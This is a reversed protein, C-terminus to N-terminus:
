SWRFIKLAVAFCALTWAALALLAPTMSLLAAGDLMVARLADNLTTLPLVKIAPQAADPFNASSFFVGSLIWMPMMIVNMLGSVGEITQVRSAVLLGMAAFTLGGFAVVMSFTVISGAFPVGFVLVGFGILITAELVLFAMRTLMQALLFQSRKMPSAVFRKLLKRNRANVIGFGVGWFGTGMINMGLLGPILFDIYRAGPDASHLERIEVVNSRGAAVQLAHDVLLRAVLSEERTSDFRFIVPTQAVVVIPVRGTRLALAADVSDMVSANLRPAANLVASLSDASPGAQVGVRTDPVGRDKFAIGLAVALIIPFAFVWFIAEPERILERWRWKTLEILARMM